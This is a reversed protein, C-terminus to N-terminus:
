CRLVRRNNAQTAETRVLEDLKPMTYAMPGIKRRRFTLRGPDHSLDFQRRFCKSLQNVVDLPNSFLEENNLVGQLFHLTDSGGRRKWCNGLILISSNQMGQYSFMLRFKSDTAHHNRAPCASMRFLNAAFCLLQALGRDLQYLM